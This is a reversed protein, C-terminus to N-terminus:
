PRDQDRQPRDAAGRHARREPRLPRRRGGHAARRGGAGGGGAVGAAAGLRDQAHRNRRLHDRRGPPLAGRRQPRDYPPPGGGALARVTANAAGGPLSHPTAQPALGSLVVWSAWVIPVDTISETDALGRRRLPRGQSPTATARSVALGSPAAGVTEASST